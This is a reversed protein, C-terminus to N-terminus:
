CAFGREREKRKGLRGGVGVHFCAFAVYYIICCTQWAEKKVVYGIVAGCPRQRTELQVSYCLKCRRVSQQATVNEKYPLAQTQSDKRSTM